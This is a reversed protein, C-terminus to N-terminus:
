SFISRKYNKCLKPHICGLFEDVYRSIVEVNKRNILTKITNFKGHIHYIRSDINSIPMEHNLLYEQPIM